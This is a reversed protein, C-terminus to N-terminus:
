IGGMRGANGGFAAIRSSSPPTTPHKVALEGDVEGDLRAPHPRKTSDPVTSSLSGASTTGLIVMM